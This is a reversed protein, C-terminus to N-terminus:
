VKHTKKKKQVGQPKVKLSEAKKVTDTSLLTYPLFGQCAPACALITNLIQVLKGGAKGTLM